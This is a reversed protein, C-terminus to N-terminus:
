AKQDIGDGSVAQGQSKFKSIAEKEKLGKLILSRIEYGINSIYLFLSQDTLQIESGLDLIQRVMSQFSESAKIKAVEDAGMSATEDHIQRDLLQLLRFHSERESTLEDIWDLKEDPTANKSAESDPELISRYAKVCTLLANLLRIKDSFLVEINTL